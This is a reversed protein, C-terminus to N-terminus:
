ETPSPTRATASRYDDPLRPLLSYRVAYAAKLFYKWSQERQEKNALLFFVFRAVSKVAYHWAYLVRTFLSYVANHHKRLFKNYSDYQLQLQRKEFKRYSVGGLHIIEAEPVFWIKLDEWHRIRYCLDTEECYARFEEDFLGIRDVLEKRVLLVAGCVYDVEQPSGAVRWPIVGRNPFGARPFLDNLFLADVVAQHFSPFDGYSLQSTMDPNKLWGGCAGADPHTDLFDTLVKIANNVLITDTNLLLVYRGNALHLGKNNSRVFGLNRENVAVKVDPFEKALMEVSHDVSGDDVVIIEYAVDMTKDYVSRLSDRMVDRCNWNTILISVTPSSPTSSLSDSTM